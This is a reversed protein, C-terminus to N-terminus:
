SGQWCFKLYHELEDLLYAAEKWGLEFTNTVTEFSHGGDLSVDSEQTIQIVFAGHKVDTIFEGSNLKM